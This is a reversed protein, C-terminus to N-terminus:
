HLHEAGYNVAYRNYFTIYGDKDCTYVAVPLMELLHQFMQDSTNTMLPLDPSQYPTSDKVKM